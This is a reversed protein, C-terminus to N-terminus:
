KAPSPEMNAPFEAWRWRRGDGDGMVMVEVMWWVMNEEVAVRSNISVLKMVVVAPKRWPGIEM